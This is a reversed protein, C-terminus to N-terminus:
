VGKDYGEKLRLPNLQFLNGYTIAYMDADALATGQVILRIGTAVEGNSGHWEGTGVALYPIPVSFGCVGSTNPTSSLASLENVVADGAHSVGSLEVLVAGFSASGGKSNTQISVYNCKILNGSSDVFPIDTTTSVHNVALGSLGLCFTRQGTTLDM